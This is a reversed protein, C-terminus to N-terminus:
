GSMRHGISRRSGHVRPQRHHAFACGRVAVHPRYVTAAGCVRRPPAFRADVAGPRCTDSRRTHSWFELASANTVGHTLCESVRAAVRCETPPSAIERGVASRRGCPTREDTRSATTRRGGLSRVPMRAAIEDGSEPPTPTRTCKPKKRRM